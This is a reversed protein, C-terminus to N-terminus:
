LVVEASADMATVDVSVCDYLKLMQLRLSEPPRAGEVELQLHWRGDDGAGPRGAIARPTFGRREAMGIVRTLAGETPSLVLDLRYRM